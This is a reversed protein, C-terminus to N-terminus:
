LNPLVLKLVTEFLVVVIGCVIFWLKANIADIRKWIAEIEKERKADMESCKGIHAQLNAKNSITTEYVETIDIQGPPPM